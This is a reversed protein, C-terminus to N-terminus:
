QCMRLLRHIWYAQNNARQRQENYEECVKDSARLSASIWEQQEAVSSVPINDQDVFYDIHVRCRDVGLPLVINTDM